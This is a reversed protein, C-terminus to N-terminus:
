IESTTSLGFVRVKLGCQDAVPSLSNAEIRETGDGQNRTTTAFNGPENSHTEALSREKKPAFM